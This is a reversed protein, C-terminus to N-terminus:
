AVALGREYESIAYEAQEVDGANGYMVLVDKAKLVLDIAPNLNEGSHRRVRVLKVDFRALDLDALKKGCIKSDSPLFVSHMIPMEGESERLQEETVFYGRIRSYQNDRTRRNLARIKAPAYDLMTLLQSSLMLGTELTEVAIGSVGMEKFREFELDSYCRVIIQMNPCLCKIQEVIMKSSTFDNFSVIVVSANQINAAQLLGPQRTDGYFVNDGALAASNVLSSDMDFAVYPISEDDLMGALHQGIAGFGCIIVHKKLKKCAVAVNGEDTVDVVPVEVTPLLANLIEKQFHMLFLSVIMSLILAGLVIQTIFPNILQLGAAISVLVFGFEGGQSLYIGVRIAEEKNAKHLKVILTPIVLLKMAMICLAVGVIWYWTQALTSVNFLMGIGIFFLGLLVDRFPRIDVEVQHYYPTGALIVGALFAGLEKSLGMAETVFAATLATLLVTLMFLETSRLKSVVDFIPTIVKQGIWFLAIFTVTGITLEKVIEYFLNNGTNKQALVGTIILFPVVAIDQFILISISLRGVTSQVQGSESLVKSVLATSSLAFTAAVVFCTGSPLNFLSAMVFVLGLCILVQLGGLLFVAKKLKALKSISFELGISFLLFVVGYKALFQLDNLHNFYQKGVVSLLIGILLYGLISPLHLRKLVAVMLVSGALVLLLQDFISSM